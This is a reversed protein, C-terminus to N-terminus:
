LAINVYLFRGSRRPFSGMHLLQDVLRLVDDGLRELADRRCMWVEYPDV